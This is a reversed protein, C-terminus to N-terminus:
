VAGLKNSRQLMQILFGTSDLEGNIHLSYQLPQTNGTIRHTQNNVVRVFGGAPRKLWRGDSLLSVCTVRAAKRKSVVRTNIALETQM